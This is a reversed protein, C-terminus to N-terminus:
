WDVVMDADCHMPGATVKVSPRFGYCWIAGEIAGRHYTDVFCHVGRFSLRFHRKTQMTLSVRALPVTIAYVKPVARVVDELTEGFAFLLVRGAMTSALSPYAFWGVRRLGEALPERPHLITAANVVLRMLERLPYKLFPLWRNRPLGDYLRAPASGVRFAVADHIYQLFAGQTSADRPCANLFREVDIAQSLSPGLSEPISRWDATAGAPLVGDTARRGAQMNTRLGSSGPSDSDRATKPSAVVPEPAPAPRASLLTPANAPRDGDRTAVESDPAMLANAVAARMAAASEWRETKSFKLARDVAEIVNAPLNPVVSALSRASTTAAVRLLEHARPPEHVLRGSLLTFMTAGCAWLDTRADIEATAGCAQEPAMFAPTGLVSGAETALETPGVLARAIGFDLVKLRGEETVFLNDPKLDRHVIGQAHAAALVDLLEIALRLVEGVDLRSMRRLRAQLSEGRLLDMVLYSCGDDTVDDDLVRVVGAHGVKNAVYGERLFRASIEQHASLLPHLIKIAVEDGNRHIAAYVAAMGGIGVVHDLRYRSKLVTGIRQQAQKEVNVAVPDRVLARLWEENTWVSHQDPPYGRHTNSM